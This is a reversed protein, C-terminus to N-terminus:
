KDELEAEIYDAIEEFSYGNDNKLALFYFVDSVSHNKATFLREGLPIPLGGANYTGTMDVWSPPLNYHPHEQWNDKNVLDCLVGLCCFHDDHRLKSRGQKYKGSRLANIWEQKM